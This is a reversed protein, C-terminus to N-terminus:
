AARQWMAETGPEFQELPASADTFAVTVMNAGVNVSRVTGPVPEILRDGPVLESADGIMTRM